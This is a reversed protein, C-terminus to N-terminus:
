FVENINRNDFWIKDNKKNSNITMCFKPDLLELTKLIIEYKLKDANDLQAQDFSLMAFDTFLNKYIDGINNLQNNIILKNIQYIKKDYHEQLIFGCFYNLMRTPGTEEFLQLLKNSYVDDKYRDNIFPINQQKTRMLEFGTQLPNSGDPQVGSTIIGNLIDINDDVQIKDIDYNLASALIQQYKTGNKNLIEQLEGVNPNQELILILIFYPYLIPKGTLFLTNYYTINNTSMFNRLKNEINISSYCFDTIININEIKIDSKTIIQQEPSEPRNITYLPIILMMFNEFSIYGSDTNGTLTFFNNAGVRLSGHSSIHITISCNKLNKLEIHTLISQIIKSLNNKNENLNNNNIYVHKNQKEILINYIIGTNKFIGYINELPIRSYYLINELGPKYTDLGETLLNLIIM